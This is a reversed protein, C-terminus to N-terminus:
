GNSDKSICVQLRADVAVKLEVAEKTPLTQATMIDINWRAYFRRNIERDEAGKSKWYGAWLAISDRLTNISEKRERHRRTIAGEVPSNRHQPPIVPPATVREIEGRLLRLTEADLLVLDGDVHEPKARESPVPFFGCYPCSPKVSEYPKYCQECTTIAVLEDDPDMPGRKGRQESFLEWGNYSDPLGYFQGFYGVNGAHDIITGLYKGDGRTLARFFQQVYLVFSKTPRAMIVVEIGQVDLGEGFLDVNVLINFVGRDFKDMILKRITKPTKGSVMEASIGADRYATALHEAHAIDVAFVVAQKGPTYTQYSKVCDGTITSKSEAESLGKRTFEGKGGTRISDRDISSPPAIIEYDCIYGEEILQRATVGKVMADFIGGQQSWLSKRDTRAPTATFGVIKAHPFLAVAKGWQNEPLLHHAEDTMVLRVRPSFTRIQASRSNITQVSGILVMSRQDFFIRGYKLKQRRVIDAVVDKPALINHSYGFEALTMALQRVLEERHAQIVVGENRKIFPEALWVMM